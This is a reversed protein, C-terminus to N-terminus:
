KFMTILVTADEPTNAYLETDGDNWVYFDGKEGICHYVDAEPMMYPDQIEFGHDLIIGLVKELFAKDQGSIGFWIAKKNFSPIYANMM